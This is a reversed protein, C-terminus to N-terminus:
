IFLKSKRVLTNQTKIDNLCNLLYQEYENENLNDISLYFCYFINKLLNINGNCLNILEELFKDNIIFRIRKSFDDNILHLTHLDIIEKIVEINFNYGILIVDNNKKLRKIEKKDNLISSDSIAYITYLYKKLVNYVGQQYIEHPCAFTDFNDIILTLLGYNKYFSIFEEVLLEPHQLYEQYKNLHYYDSVMFSNYIDNYLINLKKHFFVISFYNNNDHKQIYKCIKRLILIIYWLNSILVSPFITKDLYNPSVNIVLNNSSEYNNLITTKGSSFVGGLLVAKKDCSDLRDLVEEIPKQYIKNNM